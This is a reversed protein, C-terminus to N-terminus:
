VVSHFCCGGEKRYFLLIIYMKFRIVFYRWKKITRLIIDLGLLLIIFSMFFLVLALGDPSLDPITEVATVPSHQDDMEQITLLSSVTILHPVNILRLHHTINKSQHM